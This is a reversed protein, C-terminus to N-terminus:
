FCSPQYHNLTHDNACPTHTRTHTHQRSLCLPHPCSWEHRKDDSVSHKSHVLYWLPHRAALAFQMQFYYPPLSFSHASFSLARLKLPIWKSGSSHSPVKSEIREEGAEFSSPICGNGKLFTGFTHIWVLAAWMPVQGCESCVWPVGVDDGWEWVIFLHVLVLVPMQSGAVQRRERFHIRDQGWWKMMLPLLCM